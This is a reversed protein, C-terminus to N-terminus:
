FSYKYNFFASDRSMKIDLGEITFVGLGCGLVDYFLDKESFGGYDIEDYIEKGLGVGFCVLFSNMPDDLVYNSGAGIVTSVAFHKEYDTMEANVNLSVTIISLTSLIKKLM